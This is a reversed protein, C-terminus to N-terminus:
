LNKKFQNAESKHTSSIAQRILHMSAEKFAIRLEDGSFGESLEALEQLVATSWQHHAKNNMVEAPLLQRIMEVRTSSDPLGLMLKREFRRLFAPDIERSTLM